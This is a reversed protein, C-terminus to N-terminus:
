RNDNYSSTLASVINISISLDLSVVGVFMRKVIVEFAGVKVYVLGARHVEVGVAGGEVGRPLDIGGGKLVATDHRPHEVIDTGALPTQLTLIEVEGANFLGESHLHNFAVSLVFQSLFDDLDDAAANVVLVFEMEVRQRVMFQLPAESVAVAVAVRPLEIPFRRSFLVGLNHFVDFNIMRIPFARDDGCNTKNNGSKAIQNKQNQFSAM